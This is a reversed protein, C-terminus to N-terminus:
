TSSGSGTSLQLLSMQALKLSIISIHFQMQLVEVTGRQSPFLTSLLPTNTGTQNLSIKPHKLLLIASQLARTCLSGCM